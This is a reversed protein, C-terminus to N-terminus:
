DSMRDKVTILALVFFIIIMGTLIVFDLWLEKFGWGKLMIGKIINVGYTLPFVFSLPELWDPLSYIPILMGSVAMGPIVIIPTFQIAQFENEAYNSFFLALFIHVMGFLIFSTFLLLISGRVEIGFVFIGFIMIAFIMLLGIITLGFVYGLMRETATLPTSYLRLETGSIKERILTVLSILLLLFSLVYAMSASMGVELGTYESGGHAIIQNIQIGQSGRIEALADYLSNLVSARVNPETADIYVIIEIVTNYGMSLRYIGESFNSPILIASIYKGEEVQQINDEYSGLDVDLRTDNILFNTINTGIDLSIPGIDFGEDQNDIIIPVDKVEGSFALGFVIMIISPVVILLGITRPDRKFSNLIRTTVALVRKWSFTKLEQNRKTRKQEKNIDKNKDEAKM